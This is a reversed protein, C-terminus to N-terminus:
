QEETARYFRPGTNTAPETYEWIGSMPANTAIPEWSMLNTSASLIVSGSGSLGSVQLRIFREAGSSANSAALRIPGPLITVVSVASTTSGLDNSIICQYEGAAASTANAMTLVANTAGSINAGNLQWQYRLSGAGVAKVALFLDNAAVVQRSFPQITVHPSGDGLIATMHRSGVSAAVVNSVSAAGAGLAFSGSGWIVLSGDQKLAYSTLGQAGIAVVNSLGAPPTGFASGWHVVTGDSRLALSHLDAAAIAVVQGLGEPVLAQDGWATIIGDSRLALSRYGAAAIAVVNSLGAPVDFQGLNQNSQGWSTVTGNELLALVHQVGCALDKVSKLDAPPTPLYGNDWFYPTGLTSVALTLGYGANISNAVLAPDLDTGPRYGWEAIKGDATLVVSHFDGVAVAVPHTIAPPVFTQELHNEGWALIPGLSLQAWQSTVSGESNSAVVRYLGAKSSEFHPISLTSNTAGDLPLGEFSWQYRMPRAGSVNVGLKAPWGSGVTLGRPQKTVCPKADAVLALSRSGAAAIAVINSLGDPITCQGLKNDGWAILVGDARLALSHAGGAAIQIINTAEPPVETRGGSHFGWAVITGDDKLALSHFDGCAITTVNTLGAPVNGQGYDAGPSGSLWGRVTGNTKLALGHSYGAAIAISGELGSAPTAIFGSDKVEFVNGNKWLGVLSQGGAAIAVTFAQNPANTFQSKYPSGWITVMGNDRLAANFGPGATIAVANTLNAPMVGQYGSYMGWGEPRGNARLVLAHNAGGAIAVLNSLGEPAYCEEYGNAGWAAVYVQPRVTVRTAAGTACGAANCVIVRYDGSQEITAGELRLSSDTAGAIEAGNFQWQYSLPRDGTAMGALTVTEGAWVTQSRLPPLIQVGGFNRLALPFGEGAAVAITNTYNVPPTWSYTGWGVIAGDRRLAVTFNNGAAISVVNTASAPVSDSNGWAVVSGDSKLVANHYAGVAIAVVGDLGPPIITAASPARGWSVVTGKDTLALAHSTGVGAALFRHGMPASPGLGTVDGWQTIAGETDVAICTNGRSAIFVVNNLGAPINTQSRLNSGWVFVTGDAQLAMSHFSGAAVSVVNALGAPVICQRSSNDGWAAVTGDARLALVHSAGAALSVANTLDLPVNTVAGTGGVAVTGVNLLANSSTATGFLNSAVVSYIGGHEPQVNPLTYASQTAGALEEGNFRWQYSMPNAGGVMASFTAPYGACVMQTKPHTNFVPKQAQVEQGIFVGFLLLTATIVSYNRRRFQPWNTRIM